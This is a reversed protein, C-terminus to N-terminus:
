EPNKEFADMASKAAKQLDAKTAPKVCRSLEAGKPTFFVVTPYQKVKYKGATKEDNFKAAVFGETVIYSRLSKDILYCVKMSEVVDPPLTVKPDVLFFVAMVPMHKEKAEAFASELTTHWKVEPTDFSIGRTRVEGKDPSIGTCIVQGLADTTFGLSAAAALALSAASNKIFQRRPISPVKMHDIMTVLQSKPVAALIAQESPALTVGLYSAAAMPDKMLRDKFEENMSSAIILKQIGQPLGSLAKEKEPPRGGVITRPPSAQGQPVTGGYLPSKDDKPRRSMM